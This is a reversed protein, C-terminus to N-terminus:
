GMNSVIAVSSRVSSSFSARAASSFVCDGFIAVWQRRSDAGQLADEVLEFRTRCALWRRRQLAVLRRRLTPIPSAPLQFGGRSRWRSEAAGRPSVESQDNPAPIALMLDLGVGALHRLSVASFSGHRIPRCPQNAALASATPDVHHHAPGMLPSPSGTLVARSGSGVKMIAGGSPPPSLYASTRCPVEACRAWLLQSSAFGDDSLETCGSIRRYRV